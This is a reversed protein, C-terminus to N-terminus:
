ERRGKRGERVARSSGIDRLAEEVYEYVQKISEGETWRRWCRDNRRQEQIELRGRTNLVHEKYM